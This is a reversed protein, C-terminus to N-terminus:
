PLKYKTPTTLSFPHTIPCMDSACRCSNVVGGQDRSYNCQNTTLHGSTSIDLESRNGKPSVQNFKPWLPQSKGDCLEGVGGVM